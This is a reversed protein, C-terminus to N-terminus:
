LFSDQAFGNSFQVSGSFSFDFFGSLTFFPSSFVGSVLFGNAVFNGDNFLNFVDQSGLQSSHFIVKFLSGFSQSKILSFNIM